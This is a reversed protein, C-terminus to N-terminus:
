RDGFPDNGSRSLCGGGAQDDSCIRARESQADSGHFAAWAKPEIGCFINGMGRREYENDYKAIQGPRRRKRSTVWTQKAFIVWATQLQAVVRSATSLPAGALKWRMKGNCYQNRRSGSTQQAGSLLVNRELALLKQSDDGGM